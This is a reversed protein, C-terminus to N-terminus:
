AAGGLSQVHRQTILSQAPEPVVSLPVVVVCGSDVSHGLPGVGDSCLKFYGIQGKVEVAHWREYYPRLDSGWGNHAVAIPDRLARKDPGTEPELYCPDASVFGNAHITADGYRGCVIVDRVGPGVIAVLEATTM